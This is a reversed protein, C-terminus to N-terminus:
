PNLPETRSSYHPGFPFVEKGISAATISTLDKAVDFQLQWWGRPYRHSFHICAIRDFIEQVQAVEPRDFQLRVFASTGDFPGYQNQDPRIFPYERRARTRFFRNLTDIIMHQLGLHDSTGGSGRMTFTRPVHPERLRTFPDIIEDVEWATTFVLEEFEIEIAGWQVEGMMRVLPRYVTCTVKMFGPGYHKYFPAESEMWYPLVMNLIELTSVNLRSAWAVYDAYVELVTLAHKFDVARGKGSQLWTRDIDRVARAVLSAPTKGDALIERAAYERAMQRNADLWRIETESLHGYHRRDAEAIQLRDFWDDNLQWAFPLHNASIFKATM